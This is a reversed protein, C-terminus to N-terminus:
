EFVYVSNINFVNQRLVVFHNENGHTMYTKLENLLLPRLKKTKSDYKIIYRTNIYCNKLNEFSYDYEGFDDKVNTIYAYDNESKYIKGYQYTFSVNGLGYISGAFSNEKPVGSSADFDVMLSMIKNNKNLNVRIIDGGGLPAKSDKEVIYDNDLYLLRYKGMSWCNVYKVPQGEDDLGDTVSEVIYTAHNHNFSESKTNIRRLVAKPTGADDLDYVELSYSTNDSFSSYDSVEYYEEETLDYPIKFVMSSKVNFYPMCSKAGSRYTFSTVPFNYKLINDGEPLNKTDMGSVYNEPFDIELLSGEKSYKIKVMSPSPYTKDALAKLFDNGNIKTRGNDVTIDKDCDLVVLENDQTFFKIKGSKLARKPSDFAALYAYQAGGALTDLAVVAGDPGPVFSYFAGLDVKEFYKKEFYSTLKYFEGSIKIERESLNVEEINGSFEEDLLTISVIKKNESELIALWDGKKIDYITIEEGSLNYMEFCVDNDLTINNLGFSDSFGIDGNATSISDVKAYRYKELIIVEVEGDRDNDIARVSGEGGIFYEDDLFVGCGNYVLYTNAKDLAIGETKDSEDDIYTLESNKLSVFEDLSFVIETNKVPVVALATRNGGEEKYFVTCNKGILNSFSKDSKYSIGDIEILMKEPNKTEGSLSAFGTANLVGDETYIKHIESLNNEYRKYNTANENMGMVTVNDAMMVNYLLIKANQVSVYGVAFDNPLNKLYGNARAMEIYGTPYGGKREAVERYGGYCVALKIAATGVIADDPYFNEAGSIYGLMKAAYIKGAYKHSASVDVFSDGPIDAYNFMTGLASVFEGRSVNGDENGLIEDDGLIVSALAEALNIHSNDNVTTKAFATHSILMILALLLCIKRKM